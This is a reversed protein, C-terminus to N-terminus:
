CLGCSLIINFKLKLKTFFKLFNVLSFCFCYCARGICSGGGDVGDDDDDDDVAVSMVIVVLLLLLLRVIALAFLTFFFSRWFQASPCFTAFLVTGKM